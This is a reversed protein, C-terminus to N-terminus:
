IAREHLSFLLMFVHCVTGVRRRRGFCRVIKGSGCANDNDVTVVPPFGLVRDIDVADVIDDDDVDDVISCGQQFRLRCVNRTVKSTMLGRSGICRRVRAVANDNAFQLM